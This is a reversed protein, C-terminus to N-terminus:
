AARKFNSFTLSAKLEKIIITGTLELDIRWDIAFMIRHGAPITLSVNQMAIIPQYTKGIEENTVERFHFKLNDIIESQSSLTFNFTVDYNKTNHIYFYCSFESGASLPGETKKVSEEILDVTANFRYEELKDDSSNDLLPLTACEELNAQLNMAEEVPSSFDYQLGGYSWYLFKYGELIPDEPQKVPKGEFVYDTYYTKGNVVFNVTYMKYVNSPGEDEKCGILTFLSLVLAILLFSNRFAKVM